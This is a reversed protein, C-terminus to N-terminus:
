ISLLYYRVRYELTISSGEEQAHGAYEIVAEFYLEALSSYDQDALQTAAVHQLRNQKNDNPTLPPSVFSARKRGSYRWRVSYLASVQTRSYLLVTTIRPICSLSLNCLACPLRSLLM